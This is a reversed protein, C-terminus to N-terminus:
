TLTTNRQACDAFIHVPTRRLTAAPQQNATRRKDLFNGGTTAFLLYLWIPTEYFQMICYAPIAFLLFSFLVGHLKLSRFFILSFSLALVLGGRTLLNLVVGIDQYHCDKCPDQGFGVGILKEEPGTQLYTNIGLVKLSLSGDDGQVFRTQLHEHFNSTYVVLAVAVLVMFMQPLGIRDRWLSGLLVLLVLVFFVASASHTLLVSFVSALSIWMVTKSFDSSFVYIALLCSVYNAFTGPEVHIGSFRAINLFEESVRSASGFILRHVDFITHTVFYFLTTQIIIASVNLVLLAAVATEFERRFSFRAEYILVALAINAIILLVFQAPVPKFIILHVVLTLLVITVLLSAQRFRIRAIFLLPATFLIAGGAAFYKPLMTPNAGGEEFPTSLLFIAVFLTTFALKSFQKNVKTNIM